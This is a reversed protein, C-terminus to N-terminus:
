SSTSSIGEQQRLEPVHQACLFIRMSRVKKKPAPPIVAKEFRQAMVEFAGDDSSADNLITEEVVDLTKPEPLEFLQNYQAWSRSEETMLRKCQEVITIMKCVERPRAHLLVIPLGHQGLHTLTQTVRKSISSSSIVSAALVNYKPQLQAVITEHPGILTPKLITMLAKGRSTDPAPPLKNDPGTSAM